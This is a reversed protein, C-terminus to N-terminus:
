ADDHAHASRADRQQRVAATSEQGRPAAAFIQDLRTLAVRATRTAGPGREAGLERRALDAIYASRSLGRKRAAADIRRLLQDDMSLLVKAM